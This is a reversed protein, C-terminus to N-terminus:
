ARLCPLDIGALRADRRLLLCLCHKAENRTRREAMANLEALNRTLLADMLDSAKRATDYGDRVEILQLTDVAAMLLSHSPIAM